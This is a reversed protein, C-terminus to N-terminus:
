CKKWNTDKVEQVVGWSLLEASFHFHFGFMGDGDVVKVYKARLDGVWNDVLRRVAKEREETEPFLVFFFPEHPNSFAAIQQALIAPGDTLPDCPLLGLNSKSATIPIPHPISTSPHSTSHPTM